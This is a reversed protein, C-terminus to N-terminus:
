HDVINWWTSVTPLAISSSYVGNKLLWIVRAGYLTNEWVLDAQGDGDFDAAGALHWGASVSPLEIGYQLVGNDLIWIVHEGTVTNEWALDSQGNGLFDGVGAIHWTPSATPLSISSAYAGNYLLWIVRGGTTTNELVLDAYGDGNFDGAGAVHWGASMSPLEIGYQLVGNNLIWIVHEGTVTNELVLDSQGNGLFDGVGAIHWDPNATPLSITSSYVGNKLLWILREGTLASEWVLDAYGDGNFDKDVGKITTKQGGGLTVILNNIVPVGIGTCLDFGPGANYFGNSGATIDRFNSSGLLPYIKPGLLGLPPTATNYRVQNIRACIGAWTPASWSTGGVIYHQGNFILYGGTNLDAVLAVDPVLRFTGSPVGAGNQWSPRGFVQSSGGGGFFWASESSVAGTSVNLYLSTGGVATVNPDSAPSEVQLPGSNDGFGNLGPNSGGDGSSVFVTVGAAALISFYQDDTQMQGPPMYTEGLGYSLSIQHLEPETPLDNIIAQYGQDLDVFALDTTAYIRIGAGRAIGSSWEVDLTEEGSPSPLPGPVAQVEEINNLSQPVSNAAWFATLDSSAPFTDIVIGIKQATGDGISGGYAGAIEPVTYPPLNGILKQPGAPIMRSHHRPHLHPQLGNIGLVQGAVATPLSPAILASTSEVGALKVRGFKTGLAREIQAISGSAFVSLNYKDAPKVAFGQATLWEAVAIYDAQTPYYKAAMEDLSIIEGQGIRVQLEASDRLKLGVSFKLTAGSETETLESRVLTAAADSGIQPAVGAVEKISDPFAIRDANPSAAPQSTQGQLSVCSAMVSFAVVLWKTWGKSVLRADGLHKSTAHALVAILRENVEM